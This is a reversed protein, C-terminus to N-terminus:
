HRVDLLRNLHACVGQRIVVGDAAREFLRQQEPNAGLEGRLGNALMLALPALCALFVVPKLWRRRLPSAM